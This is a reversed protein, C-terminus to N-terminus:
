IHQGSTDAALVFTWGSKEDVYVVTSIPQTATGVIEASEPSATRDTAPGTFDTSGTLVYLGAMAAAAGAIPLALWPLRSRKTSPPTRRIERRLKQWELNADPVRVRTSESQWAIMAEALRDHIVRCTACTALHTALEARQNADLAGDREAFIQNEAARCNM